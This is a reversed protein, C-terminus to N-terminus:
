IYETLVVISDGVFFIALSFNNKLKLILYLTFLILLLLKKFLKESKFLTLSLQILGVSAILAILKPLLGLVAARNLSM